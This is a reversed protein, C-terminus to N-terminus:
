RGRSLLLLALIALFLTFVLAYLMRSWGTSDPSRYTAVGSVTAGIATGAVAPLIYFAAPMPLMLPPVFLLGYCGAAIAGALRWDTIFWAACSAAIGPLVIFTFFLSAM